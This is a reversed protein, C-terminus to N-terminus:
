GTVVENAYLTVGIGEQAMGGLFRRAVGTGRYASSLCIVLDNKWSCVCTFLNSTSSMAAFGRLWPDLEPPTRIVGLNSLTATTYRDQFRTIAGVVRNKIVLPVPKVFPLQEFQEFSDM